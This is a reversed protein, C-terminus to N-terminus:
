KENHLLRSFYTNSIQQLYGSIAAATNTILFFTLTSICALAFREVAVIPILNLWQSATMPVVFLWIISGVAHAVFTSQLATIFIGAIYGQRRLIWLVPPILWFITYPAAQHGIPHAIFLMICKLPIIVHIIVDLVHYFTTKHFPSGVGWSLTACLTPLGFTIPMNHFFAVLGIWTLLMGYTQQPAFLGGILPVLATTGCLMKGSVGLFSILKIHHGIFVVVLWLGLVIGTYLKGGNDM